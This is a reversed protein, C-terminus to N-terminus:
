YSKRIVKSKRFSEIRRAVNHQLNMYFLNIDGAHYIKIPLAKLWAVDPKSIWLLGEHVQADSLAPYIKKFNRLVGGLNLSDAAYATDTKWTLPNTCVSENLGLHYYKPYYGRAFTNWTCFCQTEDPSRCPPIQPLSGPSVPYGILYAVVLKKILITDGSIDRMLRQAHYTGQSHSAIIFPRNRNFNACYYEFATKVDEYAIDLAKKGDEKNKGYFASIQAQRYRPAYINCSRNFVSAQYLISGQDVKRNLKEDTLAANWKFENTPRKTFATPHIFFVDVQPSDMTAAPTNGPISDANDRIWPLAAWSGTQSYDPRPPIPSSEFRSHLIYRSSCSGLVTLLFPVVILLYRARTM